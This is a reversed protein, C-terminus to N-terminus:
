YCNLDYKCRILTVSSRRKEYLPFNECQKIFIMTKFVYCRVQEEDDFCIKWIQAPDEQAVAAAEVM